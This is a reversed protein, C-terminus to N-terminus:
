LSCKIPRFFVCIDSTSICSVLASGAVTGSKSCDSRVSVGVMGVMASGSGVGAGGTGFAWFGTGTTMAGLFRTRNRGLWFFFNDTATSQVLGIVLLNM